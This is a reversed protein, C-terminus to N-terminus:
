YDLIEVLSRRPLPEPLAVPAAGALESHDIARETRVLTRETRFDLVSFGCASRSDSRNVM